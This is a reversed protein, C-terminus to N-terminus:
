ACLKARFKVDLEALLEARERSDVWAKSAEMHPLDSEAIFINRLQAYLGPEYDGRANPKAPTSALVPEEAREGPVPPQKAVRKKLLNLRVPQIKCKKKTAGRAATPSRKPSGAPQKIVKLARKNSLSRSTSSM